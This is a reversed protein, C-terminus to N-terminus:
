SIKEPTNHLAYMEEDSLEINNEEEILKKLESKKM